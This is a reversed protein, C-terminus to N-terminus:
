LVDTTRSGFEAAKKPPEHHRGRGALCVENRLELVGAEVDLDATASMSAIEGLRRVHTGGCPMRATREPTECVWERRDTLTPGAANVRVPADSDIWRALIANVTAMVVPLEGIFRAVDFGRRRLSKGLRYRDRSGGTDHWTLICAADDLDHHGRSDTRAPKRWLEHTAENLAYALLHCATHAASLRLRREEDVALTVRRGALTRTAADDDVVHAVLFRVGAEDRRADVDSGVMLPGSGRRAVTVTDRVAVIATDVHLEGHDAPQDPWLPDLPHFPTVETFVLLHPNTSPRPDPVLRLVTARERFSGSPYTVITVAPDDSEM